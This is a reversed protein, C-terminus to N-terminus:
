SVKATAVLLEWSVDWAEGNYKERLHDAMLKKVEEMPHDRRTEESWWSGTIWSLMSGFALVWEEPEQFRHTGVVRKVVVDTLGKKGEQETDRGQYVERLHTEVWERDVWNGSEHLQMPMSGPFPAEFPFSTFASRMDSRWFEHPSDNQFTTFGLVGGPKLIRICDTSGSIIDTLTQIYLM